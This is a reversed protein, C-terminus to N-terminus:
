QRRAAIVFQEAAIRLPAHRHWRGVATALPESVWTLPLLHTGAIGVVKEIAFGTDNLMKTTAGVNNYHTDPASRRYRILNYLFHPAAMLWRAGNNDFDVVLLGGPRLVRQLEAFVRAQTQHPFLHLFRTTVLVDISADAFPLSFANARVFEPAPERGTCRARARAMMELTLDCATTAFGLRQLLVTVHGTGCALEVVRADRPVDELLGAIAEHHLRTFTRGYATQYRREDYQSSELQYFGQWQEPTLRTMM